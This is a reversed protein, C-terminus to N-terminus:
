HVVQALGRILFVVEAMGVLAVLTVLMEVQQLGAAAEATLLGAPLVPVELAEKGLLERRVVLGWGLETDVVAVAEELIQRFLTIVVVAALSQVLLVL